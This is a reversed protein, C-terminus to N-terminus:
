DDQMTCESWFHDKEHCILCRGEALLKKRMKNPMRPPRREAADGGGRGASNGGRDGLRRMASLNMPEAGTGGSAPTSDQMDAWRPNQAPPRSPTHASSGHGGDGNAGGNGGGAAVGSSTNLGSREKQKFAVKLALKAAVAFTEPVSHGLAETASMALVIGSAMGEDLGTMFYHYKESEALASGCVVHLKKSESVFVEVDGGCARQSLTHLKQRAGMVRDHETFTELMYAKFGEWTSPWSAGPMGTAAAEEQTLCVERPHGEMGSRVAVLIMTSEDTVGNIEFCGQMDRFWSDLNRSLAGELHTLVPYKVRPTSHAAVSHAAAAAPSAAMQPLAAMRENLQVLAADVRQELDKTGAHAVEVATRAIEQMETRSVAGGLLRNLDTRVRTSEETLEGLGQSLRQVQEVLQSLQNPDMVSSFCVKM